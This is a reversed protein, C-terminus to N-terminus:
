PKSMLPRELRTAFQALHHVPLVKVGFEIDIESQLETFGTDRTILYLDHDEDKLYVAEPLIKEVIQRQTIM